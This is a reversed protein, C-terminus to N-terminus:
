VMFVIFNFKFYFFDEEKKSFIVFNTLAFITGLMYCIYKYM